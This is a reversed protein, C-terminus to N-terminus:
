RSAEATDITLTIGYALRIRKRGNIHARAALAAVDVAIGADVLRGMLDAVQLEHQPWERNHGTGGQHAPQLWGKRTWHDIRRYSVGRDLLDQLTLNKSM